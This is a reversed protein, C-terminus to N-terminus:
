QRRRVATRNRGQSDTLEIRSDIIHWGQAKMREDTDGEPDYKSYDDVREIDRNEPTTQIIFGTDTNQERGLSSQIKKSAKPLRELSSDYIRDCNPCRYSPGAFPNTIKAAPWDQLLESCTPCIYKRDTASAVNITTALDIFDHKDEKNKRM